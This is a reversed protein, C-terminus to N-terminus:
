EKPFDVALPPGERKPEKVRSRELFSELNKGVSWRHRKELVEPTILAKNYRNSELLKRTDEFLSESRRIVVGGPL